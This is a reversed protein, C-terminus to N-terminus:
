NPNYFGNFSNYGIVDINSSKQASQNRTHSM